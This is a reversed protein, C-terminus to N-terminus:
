TMAMNSGTKEGKARTLELPIHAEISGDKKEEGVPWVMKTLEIGDDDNHRHVKQGMSSNVADAPVVDYRGGGRIIVRTPSGNRILKEGDFLLDFYEGTLYCMSIEGIMGDPYRRYSSRLNM